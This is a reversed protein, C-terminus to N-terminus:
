LPSGPVPVKTHIKQKGEGVIALDSDTALGFRRQLHISSHGVAVRRMHLRKYGGKGEDANIVVIM